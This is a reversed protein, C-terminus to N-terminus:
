SLAYHEAKHGLRWHVIKEPYDSFVGDVGMAHMLTFDEKDNVTYAFVKIGRKHAENVQEPTVTSKCVHISYAGLEEALDTYELSLGAHIVGINIHPNYCKVLQLELYNFSSVLFRNYAWGRRFVARHIESVVISVTDNSKIEINIGARRDICDIVETLSPVKQGKGADLSRIYEWSKQHVIGHGNTTKELCEDRIVACKEKVARVDVHIWNAGLEIGKEISLLTNEPEHGAAGRHGFCLFNHM